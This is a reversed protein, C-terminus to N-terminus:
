FLQSVATCTICHPYSSGPLITWADSINDFMLINGEDRDMVALKGDYEFPPTSRRPFNYLQPIAILSWVSGNYAEIHTTNVCDIVYLYIDVVIANCASFTENPSTMTTWNPSGIELQECEIHSNSSCNRGGIAIISKMYRVVAHMSRARMMYPLKTTRYTVLCVELCRNRPVSPTRGGGCLIATTSNILAISANDMDFLARHGSSTWIGRDVDFWEMDSLRAFLTDNAYHISGFFFIRTGWSGNPPVVLMPPTCGYRGRPPPVSTFESTNVNFIRCEPPGGKYFIKFDDYEGKHRGTYM